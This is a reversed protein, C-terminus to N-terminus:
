TKTPSISKFLKVQEENQKYGSEHNIIVYYYLLNSYMHYPATRFELKRYRSSLIEGYQKINSYTNESTQLNRHVFRAPRIIM